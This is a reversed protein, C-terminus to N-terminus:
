WPYKVVNARKLNERLFGLYHFEWIKTKCTGARKPDYTANVFCNSQVKQCIDMTLTRAKDYNDLFHSANMGADKLRNTLGVPAFQKLYAFAWCKRGLTDPSEIRDGPKRPMDYYQVQFVLYTWMFSGSIYQSGQISDLWDVSSRAYTTNLCTGEDVLAHVFDHMYVAQSPWDRDAKISTNYPCWSVGPGVLSACVVERKSKLAADSDNCLSM